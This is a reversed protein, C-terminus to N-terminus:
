PNNLSRGIRAEKEAQGMGVEGNKEDATTSDAM